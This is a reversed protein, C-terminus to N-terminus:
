KAKECAGDACADDAYAADVNEGIEDNAEESDDVVYDEYEEDSDDEYEDCEDYDVAGASNRTKAAVIEDTCV